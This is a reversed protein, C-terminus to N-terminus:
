SPEPPHGHGRHYAAAPPPSSGKAALGATAEFVFGRAFRTLRVENALTLGGSEAARIWRSRPYFHLVGPGFALGNAIDRLHEVVVIRGKPALSRRAEAFAAVHAGPDRLEHAAMLFFVADAWRDGIPLSDARGTIADRAPPRAARARLISREHSAHVDFLDITVGQSGPLLAHLAGSTDDFGTTVNVWRTPAGGIRETLWTWRTVGSHDFVWWAVGISGVVWTAALVATAGVVIRFAVGLAGPALIAALLGAISMLMAAVYPPWNFRVVDIARVGVTSRPVATM